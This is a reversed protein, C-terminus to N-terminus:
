SSNAYTASSSVVSSELFFAVDATILRSACKWHYTAFRIATWKDNFLSVMYQCSRFLRFWYQASLWRQLKLFYVLFRTKLPHYSKDGYFPPLVPYGTSVCGLRRPAQYLFPREISMSAM